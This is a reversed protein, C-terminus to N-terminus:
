FGDPWAVKNTAVASTNPVKIIPENVKFKAISYLVAADAENNNKFDIQDGIQRVAALMVEDKGANGRGTIWKKLVTPPCVATPIDAWWLQMKVGWWLGARETAKGTQSGLALGEVIVLDAQETHRGVADLIYGMRSEDKLKTTITCADGNNVVGTGTLSLDLAVINM